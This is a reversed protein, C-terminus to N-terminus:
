VLVKKYEKILEVVDKGLIKELQDDRTHQLLKSVFGDFNDEM